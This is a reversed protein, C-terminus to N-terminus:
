APDFTYDHIPWGHKVSLKMASGQAAARTTFDGICDVGGEILHLYTSFSDPHNNDVDFTVGDESRVGQIEIADFREPKKGIIRFAYDDDKVIAAM